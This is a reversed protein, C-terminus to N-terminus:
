HSGSSGLEQSHGSLRKPSACATVRRHHAAMAALQSRVPRRPGTALFPWRYSHSSVMDLGNLRFGWRLLEHNGLPPMLIDRCARKVHEVGFLEKDAM